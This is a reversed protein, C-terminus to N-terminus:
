NEFKEVTRFSRRALLSGRKASLIQNFLRQKDIRVLRPLLSHSLSLAGKKDQRVTKIFGRGILSSLIILTSSTSRTCRIGEVPEKTRSYRETQQVSICVGCVTHLTAASRGVSVTTIKLSYYYVTRTYARCCLTREIRM